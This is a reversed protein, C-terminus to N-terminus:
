FCLPNRRDNYTINFIEYPLLTLNIKIYSQGKSHAQDTKIIKIIRGTEKEPLSDVM